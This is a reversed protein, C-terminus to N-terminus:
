SMNPHECGRGKQKRGLSQAKAGHTRVGHAYMCLCLCSVLLCAISPFSAFLVIILCLAPLCSLCLLCLFWSALLYALLCVLLIALLCVLFCVLLSVFLLHHERPVFTPKFQIDMAKNHQLMSLASALLVWAHVHLCTHLSAYLALQPCFCALYAYWWVSHFLPFTHM